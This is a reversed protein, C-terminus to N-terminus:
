RVRAKDPVPWGQRLADLATEVHLPRTPRDYNQMAIRNAYDLAQRWAEEREAELELQLLQVLNLLDPDRRPM